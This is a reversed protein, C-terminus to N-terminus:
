VQTWRGNQVNLHTPIPVKVFLFNLWFMVVRTEAFSVLPSSLAEHACRKLTHPMQPLSSSPRILAPRMDLAQLYVLPDTFTRELKRNLETERPTSSGGPAEEERVPVAV